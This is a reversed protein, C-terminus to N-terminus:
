GLAFTAVETAGTKKAPLDEFPCPGSAAKATSSKSGMDGETATARVSLVRRSKPQNPRM